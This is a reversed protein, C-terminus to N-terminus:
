LIGMSQIPLWDIWRKQQVYRYFFCSTTQDFFESHRLHSNGHKLVLTSFHDSRLYTM